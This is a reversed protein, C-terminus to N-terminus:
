NHSQLWERYVACSDAHGKPNGYSNDIWEGCQTCLLRFDSTRVINLTKYGRAKAGILNDRVKMAMEVTLYQLAYEPDTRSGTVSYRPSPAGNYEFEIDRLTGLTPSEIIYNCRPPM